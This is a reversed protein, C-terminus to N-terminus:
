CTALHGAFRRAHDGLDADIRAAVPPDAVTLFARIFVPATCAALEAHVIRTFEALDGTSHVRAYGSAAALACLDTRTSPVVQGGTSAYRGDDLLVHVLPLDPLAGATVLGVPNMLLAGDGDVVVTPRRTELAVGIAISSALGMSGTMYFHNDRDALGRAIRCAYGTTFIIPQDATAALVAEIAATKNM